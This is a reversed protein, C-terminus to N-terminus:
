KLNETFACIIVFAYTHIRRKKLHGHCLGVASKFCTIRSAHKKKTHPKKNQKTKNELDFM